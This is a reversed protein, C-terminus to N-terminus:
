TNWGVVLEPSIDQGSGSFEQTSFFRAYVDGNAQTQGVLQMANGSAWGARDVIEQLIDKLDVTEFITWFSDADDIVQEWEATATTLSLANAEAATTPATANDVDNGYWDVTATGATAHFLRFRIKAYVITAGNPITVEPFRIFSHRRPGGVVWHGHDTIVAPQFVAEYEATDEPPETDTNLGVAGGPLDPLLYKSGVGYWESLYGSMGMEFLEVQYAEHWGEKESFINVQQIGPQTGLKAVYRRGWPDYFLIRSASSAFLHNELNFSGYEGSGRSPSAQATGNDIVFVWKRRRAPNPTADFVLGTCIPSNTTIGVMDVSPRIWTFRVADEPVGITIGPTEGIVLEDEVASGDVSYSMKVQRVAGSGANITNQTLVKGATMFKSYLAMGGDIWPWIANGTTEYRYSADDEPLLNPGPLIYHSLTDGYAFVVVPNSSNVAGARQPAIATCDNAGLYTWTHWEQDVPNGKMIYTNGAANKLGFYIHQSDGGIATIDGNIEPHGLREDLPFVQRISHSIPEIEFMQTGYNTYIYGNRWLLTHKGNDPVALDRAPFIDDVTTGDFTWIGEEKFVFIETEAVLMNTVTEWTDGVQTAASWAAGGNTGDTNNRLSGNEKIGWLVQGASGARTTWYTYDNETLNSATWSTGDSSYQYASSDGMAVFVNSEYEIIDTPTVSSLRSDWVDTTTNYEYVAEDTIAFLGLSTFLIKIIEEGGTDTDSQRQPSLYMKGPWSLDVGRTYSYSTSRQAGPLEQELGCGGSWDQFTLATNVNTPESPYGFDESVRQPALPMELSSTYIPRGAEDRALYYHVKRGSHELAIEYNQNPM